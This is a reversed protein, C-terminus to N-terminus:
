PFSTLLLADLNKFTVINADTTKKSDWATYITSDDCNAASVSLPTPLYKPDYHRYYFYISQKMLYQGLQGGGSCESILLLCNRNSLYSAYEQLKHTFILNEYERDITSTDTTNWFIVILIGPNHQRTWNILKHLDETDNEYDISHRFHIVVYKGEVHIPLTDICNCVQLFEKTRYKSITIDYGMEVLKESPNLSWSISEMTMYDTLNIVNEGNQDELNELPFVNPFIKTYLFMRQPQTYIEVTTDIIGKCLLDLLIIRSIHIEHGLASLCTHAGDSTVSQIFQYVM